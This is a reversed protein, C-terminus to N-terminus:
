RACVAAVPPRRCTPAPHRLGQRPRLGPLAARHRPPVDRRRGLRPRDRVVLAGATPTACSPRPRAPGLQRVRLVIVARQRSRKPTATRASLLRSALRYPSAAAAFSTGARPSPGAHAAYFHFDDIDTVVHFNTFCASNGVVLRHPDLAKLLPLDPWGPATSPTSPWTPAGTRTSSRGSSSAPTTGTASSWATWAHRARARRRRRDPGALQAARDLDPPRGPRGRRLLAPRRDQHPLAPLQPGAAKAKRSSTRWSPTRPRTYIGDPYYDQDLAGRLYVPEGNLLAGTARRSPASASPRPCHTSCSALRPAAHRHHPLAAPTEPSWPLPGLVLLVSTARDHGAAAVVTASAVVIGDPDTIELELECPQMLRHSLEVAVDVRGTRLCPTLRVARVHDAARRELHVCQWIGGLPGYWSQKGHPVEGFPFDPFLERDDTPATVGRGRGRQPRPRVLAGIEVEFPLYGGEHEVALSGNM